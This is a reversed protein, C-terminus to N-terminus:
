VKAGAGKKKMAEQATLLERYRHAMKTDSVGNVTVKEGKYYDGSRNRMEKKISALEDSISKGIDGTGAPVVTAAPNLQTALYVFGQLLEPSSGVPTGDPMRAQMLVDKAAVQTGDAMKIPPLMVLLSDLANMNARYNAGPWAARLKDQTARATALDKEDQEASRKEEIDYYFRVAEKVQAPTYNGKHAAAFFQEFMPKDEDGIVLGDDFKMHEWYAKAEPPIGADVRWAKIEDESADKRLTHKLLGGHLKNELERFSRYIDNPASFRGLRALEQADGGAMTERWNEGWPGAAGGTSSATSNMAHRVNGGGGTSQVSGGTSQLGGGGTSQVTGGGGGTSAATSM